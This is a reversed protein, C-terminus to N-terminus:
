HSVVIKQTQVTSGVRVGVIYTGAALNKTSVTTTQVGNNAALTQEYVSQGLINTLSIHTEGKVNENLNLTFFDNSVSPTATFLHALLLILFKRIM